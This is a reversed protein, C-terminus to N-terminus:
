MGPHCEDGHESNDLCNISERVLYLPRGKVEDYIRGIYEGLIGIILLQLGGFFLGLVITTTVGPVYSAQTLRRVVVWALLLFSVGMGVCGIYLALRLPVYSFSFIGDRALKILGGWTYHSQGAARAPREYGIGIQRFGVWSRLGRVFRNRERMRRLIRAVRGDLLCFDGADPHIDIDATRSLVRYFTRYCLRKFAHEKRSRRVAYVVEYGNQWHGIMEGILEPPDQLDADLVVIADGTAYDIGATIAAQHGFNRTLCLVRVRQDQAAISKLIDLSRDASGDDVFIFEWMYPTARVAETLREYFEQLVAEENLVPIVASLNM